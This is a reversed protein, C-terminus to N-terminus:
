PVPLADAARLALVSPLSTEVQTRKYFRVRYRIRVNLTAQIFGGGSIIMYLTWYWAKVPNANTLAGWDESFALGGRMKATTMSHSVHTSQAGEGYPLIRPKIYPQELLESANNIINASDTAPWLGFSIADLGENIIDVTVTSKYVMYREYFSAYQQFYHPQHDTGATSTLDPDFCSNGRFVQSQFTVIGTHVITQGYTLDLVM